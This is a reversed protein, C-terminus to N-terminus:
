SKAIAADILKKFKAFSPGNTDSVQSTQIPKGNIFFSPTAQEQGTKLFAALDANISTNVQGGAYDTKFKAVDLGLQQAYTNFFTQSNKAETWNQWNTQDYLMDHMEWFKGQLAAAEAARAAAFANPHLQTLPLNRFQLKIDQKYTDLVQKVVPFYSECVPCQYDGYELLTVNKKGEGIVHNTAKDPTASGGGPAKSNSNQSAVFIGGFVIILVSLIALFRKDMLKTLRVEKKRSEM